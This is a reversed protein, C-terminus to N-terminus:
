RPAPQKGKAAKSRPPPALHNEALLRRAQPVTLKRVAVIPIRHPQWHPVLLDDMSDNCIMGTHADDAFGLRERFKLTPVPEFLKILYPDSDLPVYVILESDNLVTWSGDFNRLWFCGPTGPLVPTSRGGSGVDAAFGAGQSSPSSACGTLVCAGAALLGIAIRRLAQITLRRATPDHFARGGRFSWGRPAPEWVFSRRSHLGIAASTGVDASRQM